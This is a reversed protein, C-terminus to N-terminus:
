MKTTVIAKAIDPTLVPNAPTEEAQPKKEQPKPPLMGLGNCLSCKNTTKIQPIKYAKKIKGQGMCTRCVFWMNIGTGYCDKCQVDISGGDEFKRTYRGTGDCSKCKRPKKGTGDCSKCLKEFSGKELKIMLGAGKCRPCPNQFPTEITFFRKDSLEMSALYSILENKNSILGERKKDTKADKLLIEFKSLVLNITLEEDEVMGLGFQQFKEEIGVQEMGAGKM